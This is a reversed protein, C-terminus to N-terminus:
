SPKAFKALEDPTVSAIGSLAGSISKASEESLPITIAIQNDNDVFRLLKRGDPSHGVSCGANNLVLDIAM